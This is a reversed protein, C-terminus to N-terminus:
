LSGDIEFIQGFGTVSNRFDGTVINKFHGTVGSFDDTVSAHFVCKASASTWM